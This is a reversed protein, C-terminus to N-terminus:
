PEACCAWRTPSTPDTNTACYLLAGVLSQYRKHLKADVDAPDQCLADAVHQPLLESAPTLEASCKPVGDPFYTAVMKRVYNGQRLSVKDGPCDFDIAPGATRRLSPSLTM